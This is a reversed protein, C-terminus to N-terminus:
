ISNGDVHGVFFPINYFSTTVNIQHLLMGNRKQLFHLIELM